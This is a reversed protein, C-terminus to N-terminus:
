PTQTITSSNGDGVQDITASHGPGTSGFGDQTISGFNGTGIQDVDITNHWDRIDLQTENTTGVQYINLDVYAGHHIEGEIINGEGIQHMYFQEARDGEYFFYDGSGDPGSIINSAGEQIFTVNGGGDDENNNDGKLQFWLENEDGLQKADIYNYEEDGDHYTLDVKMKNDNGDQIGWFKNYDGEVMYEMWNRYGHSAELGTAGPREQDWIGQDTYAENGDGKQDILVDNDDGFQYTEATNLDGEQEITSINRDAENNDDQTGPINNWADQLQRADNDDGNQRISALNDNGDQETDATNDDGTIDHLAGPMSPMSPAGFLTMKEQEGNNNGEQEINSTNDDGDIYTVATNNGIYPTSENDTGYQNHTVDNGDGYIEVWSSNEGIQDIDVYQSTGGWSARILVSSYNDDIEDGSEQYINVDQHNGQIDGEVINKQGYQEIHVDSYDSNLKFPDDDTFSGNYVEDGSTTIGIGKGKIVNETGEQYFYVDNDDGKLLADIDNEDGVQHAEVMNRMNEAQYWNLQDIRMDNGIGEKETNDQTGVFVNDDGTVGYESYNNAGYQEQSSNNEDGEITTKAENEQAIVVGAMFIVAVLVSMLKKM